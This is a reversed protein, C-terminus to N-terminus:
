STCIYRGDFYVDYPSRNVIDAPVGYKWTDLADSYGPQCRRSGSEVIKKGSPDYVCYRGKPCDNSATAVGTTTTLVGTALAVTALTVAITRQANM